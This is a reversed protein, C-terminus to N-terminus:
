GRMVSPPTIRCVTSHTSSSPRMTVTAGFSHGVLAVDGESRDLFPRILDGQDALTQARDGPWPSTQGYGVLNPAVVRYRDSLRSILARWQRNGSVSSHLLIVTPGHGAELYDIIWAPTTLIPM